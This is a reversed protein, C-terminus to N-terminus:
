DNSVVDNPNLMLECLKNIPCDREYHIVISENNLFNYGNNLESIIATYPSTRIDLIPHKKDKIIFM